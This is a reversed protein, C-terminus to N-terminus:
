PQVVLIESARVQSVDATIVNVLVGTIVHASIVPGSRRGDRALVVSSGGCCASASLTQYGYHDRM